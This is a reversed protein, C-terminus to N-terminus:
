GKLALGPLLGYYHFHNSQHLLVATAHLYTFEVVNIM